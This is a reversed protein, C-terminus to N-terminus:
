YVAEPILILGMGQFANNANQFKIFIRADPNSELFQSDQETWKYKANPLTASELTDGASIDVVATRDIEVLVIDSEIKYVM